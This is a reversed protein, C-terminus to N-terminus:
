RPILSREYILSYDSVASNLYAASQMEILRSSTRRFEFAGDGEIYIAHPPVEATCFLKVKHEYLTDILTM